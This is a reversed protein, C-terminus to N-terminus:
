GSILPIIVRSIVRKPGMKHPFFEILGITLEITAGISIITEFAYRLSQLCPSKM